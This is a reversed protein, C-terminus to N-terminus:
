LKIIWNVSFNFPRTENGTVANNVYSSGYGTSLVGNEPNNTFFQRFGDDGGTTQKGYVWLLNLTHTHNAIMQGQVEKVNEGSYGGYTDNTGAGRLFAARYDPPAYMGDIIMGIGLALLNNYKGDANSKKTGDAFVWGDPEDTGLFGIISGPPPAISVATATNSNINQKYAPTYSM